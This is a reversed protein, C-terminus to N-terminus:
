ENETRKLREKLEALKKRITAYLWPTAIWLSLILLWQLIALLRSDTRPVPALQLPQRVPNDRPPAPRWPRLSDDSDSDDYSEPVNTLPPCVFPPNCYDKPPAPLNPVTANLFYLIRGIQTAYLAQSDSGWLVAVLEGSRNFVGGGSDGFRVTQGSRSYSAKLTDFTSTQGTKVYGVASAATQQYVGTPGFGCAFVLEGPLAPASSLTVASFTGLSGDTLSADLVALDYVKDRGLLRIPGINQGTRGNSSYPSNFSPVSISGGVDLDDFVHACSLILLRNRYRIITGSGFSNVRSTSVAVRVQSRSVNLQQSFGQSGSTPPANSGSYGNTGGSYGNPGGSYGNPGGPTCNICDPPNNTRPANNQPRCAGGSCVLGMQVKQYSDSEREANFPQPVGPSDIPEGCFATSLIAAALCPICLFSLFSFFLIPHIPRFSSYKM